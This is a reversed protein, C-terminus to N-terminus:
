TDSQMRLHHSEFFYDAILGLDNSKFRNQKHRSFMREFRCDLDFTTVIPQTAYVLQESMSKWIHNAETRLCEYLQKFTPSQDLLPNRASCRSSRHHSQPVDFHNWFDPPFCSDNGFFTDALLRMFPLIAAFQGYFDALMQDKFLGFNANVFALTWRFDFTPTFQLSCLIAVFQQFYRDHHYLADLACDSVQRHILRVFQDSCGAVITEPFTSQIAAILEVDFDTLVRKPSFMSNKQLIKIHIVTFICEFTSRSPDAMLCHFFPLMQQGIECHITYLHCDTGRVRYDASRICAFSVQPLLEILRVDALVVFKPSLESCLIFDFDDDDDQEANLDPLACTENPDMTPSPVLRFLLSRVADRRSLRKPHTSM